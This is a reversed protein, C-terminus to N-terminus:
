VREPFYYMYLCVHQLGFKVQKPLRKIASCAHKFMVQLCAIYIIEYNELIFSLDDDSFAM